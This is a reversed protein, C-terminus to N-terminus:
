PFPSGIAPLLSLLLRQELKLVLNRNKQVVISADQQLVTNPEWPLHDWIVM